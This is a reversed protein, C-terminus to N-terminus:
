FSVGFEIGLRFDGQNDLSTTLKTKEGVQYDVKVIESPQVEFTRSYSVYLNELLYKGARFRMSRRLIDPQLRFEDLKFTERVVDEVDGLVTAELQNSVIRLVEETLAEQINGGAFTGFRHLTLKRVIDTESMPPDSHLTTRLDGVTGNIQVMVSADPLTNRAEAAIQPMTGRYRQFILQARTIEFENDLYVVSGQTAEIRGDVGLNNLPGTVQLSGIGRVEMGLGRVRFEGRHDVNVDLTLPFSTSTSDLDLHALDIDTNELEITGSLVPEQLTGSLRGKGTIVTKVLDTRYPVKNLDYNFSFEPSVSELYVVGDVKASGTGITASINEIEARNGSFVINGQLNTVATPYPEFVFATEQLSIYGSFDPKEWNGAIDVNVKLQGKDFTLGRVLNNLSRLDSQPSRISLRLPLEKDKSIFPLDDIFEVQSPWPLTGTVSLENGELSARFENIRLGTNDVSFSGLLGSLTLKEYIMDSAELELQGRFNELTGNANAKFHINGAIDNTIGLASRYNELYIDQGQMTLNINGDLSFHGVLYVNSGNAELNADTIQILGDSYKLKAVLTPELEALVISAKTIDLDLEPDDLRGTLEATFNAWINDPINVDFISAMKTVDARVATIEGSVDGTKLNLTGQGAMTGQGWKIKSNTISLNFDKLDFLAGVRDIREGLFVGDEITAEGKIQPSALSGAVKGRYTLFGNTVYESYSEPIPLIDIPLDDVNVQLDVSEENLLASGLISFRGGGIEGKAKSLLVLGNQYSATIVINKADYGYISSPGELLDLKIFPNTLPGELALEFSIPGSAYEGFGFPELFETIEQNEFKVKLDASLEDKVSVFGLLKHTKGSLSTLSIDSVDIVQLESDGTVKGFIRKMKFKQFSPNLWDVNGTLLPSKLTGGVKLKLDIRGGFDRLHPYLAAFAAPEFTNVSLDLDLDKGEELPVTGSVMLKAPKIEAQISELGILDKRLFFGGSINTAQITDYQLSESDVNGVIDAEELNWDSIRGLFSLDVKGQIESIDLPLEEVLFPWSKAIESPVLGQIDVELFSDLVHDQNPYIATSVEKPLALAGKAVVNAGLAGLLLNDIEVIGNSLRGSMILGDHTYHELSGPSVELDYLAFMQDIFGVLDANVNALGTADIGLYEKAPAKLDIDSTEVKLNLYPKGFFDDISGSANVLGADLKADFSNVIVNGNEYVLDGKVDKLPSYLESHEITTQYLNLSADLALQSLYGSVTLKGDFTGDVTFDEIWEVPGSVSPIDYQASPPLEGERIADIRQYLGQKLYGEFAKLDGKEANFEAYIRPDAWGGATYGTATVTTKGGYGVAEFNQIGQDSFRVTGSSTEIEFPVLFYDFNVGKLQAIGNYDLYGSKYAVDVELDGKGKHLDVGLNPPLWYNFDALDINTSSVKATWTSDSLDIVATGKVPYFATQDKGEPLWQKPWKSEGWGEIPFSLEGDFSVNIKNGSVIEASLGIKRSEFNGNSNMFPMGSFFADGQTVVVPIGEPVSFAVPESAQRFMDEFSWRNLENNYELNVSPKYLTVADLAKLYDGRSSLLRILNYEVTIRNIRLFNDDRNKLDEDLGRELSPGIVLDDIVLRSFIDPGIAGIEVHRGTVDELTTIVKWRITDTLSTQNLAVIIGVNVLILLSLIIGLTIFVAKAVPHVSKTSAKM